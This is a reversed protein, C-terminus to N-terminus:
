RPRNDALRKRCDYKIQKRWIRQRKRERFKEIKIRREEITYQGVRRESDSLMPGGSLNTVMVNGGMGIGNMVMGNVGVMRYMDDMVGNTSMMGGPGVPMGNPATPGGPAGATLTTSYNMISTLSSKMLPPKYMGQHGLLTTTPLGNAGVGPGGTANPHHPHHPQLHPLHSNHHAALHHHMMANPNMNGPTLVPEVKLGSATMGSSTAMTGSSNMGSSSGDGVKQQQMMTTFSTLHPHTAHAGAGASSPHYTHLSHLSHQGAATAGSSSPVSSSGPQLLSHQQSGLHPYNAMHSAGTAGTAGNISSYQLIASSATSAPGTGPTVPIVQTQSAPHTPLSSHPQLTGPVAGSSSLVTSQSSSSAVQGSQQQQQMMLEQMSESRGLSEGSYNVPTVITGSLLATSTTPLTLTTGLTGSTMGSSVINASVSTVTVTTSSSSGVAAGSSATAANSNAGAAAKKTTKTTKEQKVEPTKPNAKDAKATSKRKTKSSPTAEGMGDEKKIPIGLGENIVMITEDFIDAEDLFKDDDFDKAEISTRTSDELAAKSSSSNKKNTKIVLKPKEVEKKEAGILEEIPHELTVDWSFARDRLPIYGDHAYPVVVNSVFFSCPQSFHHM